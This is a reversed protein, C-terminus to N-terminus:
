LSLIQAYKKEKKLFKEKNHQLACLSTCLTYYDIYVTQHIKMNIHVKYGFGLALYLVNGAGWFTGHYRKGTELVGGVGGCM